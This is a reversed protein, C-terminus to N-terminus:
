KRKMRKDAAQSRLQAEKDAADALQESFEVDIGDSLQERPTQALMNKGKGKRHEDRGM